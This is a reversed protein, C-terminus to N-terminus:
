IRAYDTLGKYIADGPSAKKYREISHACVECNKFVAGCLRLPMYCEPKTDDHAEHCCFRGPLRYVPVLKLPEGGRRMGVYLDKIRARASEIARWQDKIYQAEAAGEQIPKFAPTRNIKPIKINAPKFAM